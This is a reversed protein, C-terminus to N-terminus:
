YDLPVIQPGKELLEMGGPFSSELHCGPKTLGQNLPFIWLFEQHYVVLYNNKDELIDSFDLSGWFHQISPCAAGGTMSGVVIQCTLILIRAVTNPQDRPQSMHVQVECYVSPAFDELVYTQKKKCFTKPTHKEMTQASSRTTTCFHKSACIIWFTGLRGRSRCGHNGFCSKPPLSVEHSHFGPISVQAFSMYTM